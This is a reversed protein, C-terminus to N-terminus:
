RKSINLEMLKYCKDLDDAASTILCDREAQMEARIEEREARGSIFIAIIIVALFARM